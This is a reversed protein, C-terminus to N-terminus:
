GPNNSQKKKLYENVMTHQAAIIISVVFFLIFFFVVYIVFNIKVLYERLRRDLTHDFIKRLTTKEDRGQIFYFNSCIIVSVHGRTMRRYNGCKVYLRFIFMFKQCVSLCISFDQSEDAQSLCLISQFFGINAIQCNVYIIKVMFTPKFYM